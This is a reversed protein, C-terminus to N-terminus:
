MTPRPMTPTRWTVRSASLAIRREVSIRYTDSAIPMPPKEGIQAGRDGLHVDGRQDLPLTPERLVVRDGRTHQLRGEVM